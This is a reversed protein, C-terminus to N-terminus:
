RLEGFNSALIPPAADAPRPSSRPSSRPSRLFSALSTSAAALAELERELRGKPPPAAPEPERPAEWAEPPSWARAVDPPAADQTTTEAELAEERVADAVAAPALPAVDRVSPQRRRPKACVAGM